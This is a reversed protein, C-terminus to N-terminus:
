YKRFVQFFIRLSEQGCSSRGQPLDKAKTSAAANDGQSRPSVTSLWQKEPRSCKTIRGSWLCDLSYKSVYSIHWEAIHRSSHYNGGVLSVSFDLYSGNFILLIM